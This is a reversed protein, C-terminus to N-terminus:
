RHTVKRIIGFGVMFLSVGLMLLYVPNNIAWNFASTAFGLIGEGISTVASIITSPTATTLTEPM